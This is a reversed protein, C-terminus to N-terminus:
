AGGPRRSHTPYLEEFRRRARIFANACEVSASRECTPDPRYFREWLQSRRRGEDAAAAAAASAAEQQAARVRQRRAEEEQLRELRAAQELRVLREREVAQLQARRQQEDAERQRRTAQDHSRWMGVFVALIVLLLVLLGLRRFWRSSRRSDAAAVRPRRFIKPNYYLNEKRRLEDRYWDRDQVGM